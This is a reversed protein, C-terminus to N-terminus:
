ELSFKVPLNFQVKVERGRQKGPNWNPMKQVVRLAEDGCQGGIDRVIDASSIYGDENIVFRIVVMGQIGNERAIAPYNINKYVFQLMEQEACAKREKKDRVGECGKFTPMEEVVKFIDPVTEEKIPPPPPTKIVTKKAIPAPAVPEDIEISTDIFEVTDIVEEDPLIELKAPPPPPKPPPTTTIPSHVPIKPPLTPGCVTFTVKKDYQTWSFAFIAMSVVILLGFNFFSRGFRFADVSPYKNRSAMDRPRNEAEFQTKLDSNSRARFVNKMWVIIGIIGLMFIGYAALVTTGLVEFNGFDM